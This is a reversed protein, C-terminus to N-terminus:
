PRRAPGRTAPAPPRLLLLAVDDSVGGTQQVHDILTDALADLSPAQAAALQRALDAISEGLDVGPREVLGDTYLALVAGPPLAIETTPYDADPEIGLLLGPPPDLVEARHDPHRLLPPPHGASALLAKGNRLDLQVYLCSAFLQSQLDVLLRNARALVEGPGAGSDAHTHVATRVQGMLAAANVNHGQVDGIVAAATTEDLRVLDYFDGGIDMGQSAPLYRAASDLGPVAPLLRPLLAAQLGYAVQNKTDYLSARELAQAIMAALATLAAREDAPFAHTESYGLVCCGIPRGAAILPLYAFSAQQAYVSAGQPHARLLEGSDPFFEPVGTALVRISPVNSSLSLGDFHRQAARRFGGTGLVRLRGNDAVVLALAQANLVPMIQETVADTVDKVGVADSLSSSLHMLYFLTGASAEPTAPPGTAPESGAPPHDLVTVRVSVGTIDPHLAFSLWTDPPKLANFSAPLRSFLTELFCNEHVPDHAWPLVEWFRAGLLEGRGGGLLEVARNSLFTIRGDLDLSLHGEQFRETLGAGSRAEAEPWPDSPPPAVAHPEDGPRLPDGAKEAQDLFRSIRRGAETIAESERPSLEPPHTGPWLLLVVGKVADGSLVPSVGMAVQYPLALGTRPYRRALEDHSRLWVPRGQRAVDAVPVPAAMAVRAWPRAIRASVGFVAVMRLVQEDPVPLYVAGVHSGTDATLQSLAQHIGAAARQSATRGSAGGAAEVDGRVGRPDGPPEPPHSSEGTM